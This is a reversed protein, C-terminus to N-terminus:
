QPFEEGDNVWINLSSERPEPDTNKLEECLRVSFSRALDSAESALDLCLVASCCGNSFYNYSDLSLFTFM